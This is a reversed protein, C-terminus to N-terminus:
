MMENSTLVITVGQTKLGPRVEVLDSQGLRDRGAFIACFDDTVDCHPESIDWVALILYEGPPVGTLTFEAISDTIRDATIVQSAVSRPQAKNVSAVDPIYVFLNGNKQTAEGLLIKGSVSGPADAPPVGKAGQSEYQYDPAHYPEDIDDPFLPGSEDPSVPPPQHEGPTGHEPPKVSVEPAAPGGAAPRPKQATAAPKSKIAEPKKKPCGALLGIGLALILVMLLIHTNKM